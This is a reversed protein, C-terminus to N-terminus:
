RVPRPAYYDIADILGQECVKCFDRNGKSFM